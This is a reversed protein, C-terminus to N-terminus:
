YHGASDITVQGGNAGVLVFRLTLTVHRLESLKKSVASSLHVRLNVTGKTIGSVTGRGIFVMPSHGSAIHARKAASRGIMLAAFGDASENSTVRVELGQHLVSSLSQPMLQLQVRLQSSSGPPPVPKGNSGLVQITQSLGRVNGGRDIVTLTVRYTGGHAYAHTVSPGVASTGDGFTWRYGSSPVILTSITTSGDFEVVDGQNVASPVVFSPQILVGPACSFYTNPDLEITAANNFERQLLYPNQSSKGVTVKDLNNALPACGDNDNIESGDLAFWGNLAPDIIAGIQSQSIPSVLRIGFDRALVAPSPNQPLPQADPEDCQTLATWPQVVYPVETGDVYVQSHYSCFVPVAPPSAGATPPTTMTFSSGIAMPVTMQRAYGAEGLPTVYAYWGIAGSAAPPSSITITSKGGSTTISQPASALSEGGATVYTIEVKYTGAEVSGGTAATTLTPAPPTLSDNASCLKANADLCTDVGAPLLMVVTPTHGPATRSLMGTQNIMTALEHQLQANTLCITNAITVSDSLFSDGSPACGNAPYDHGAGTPRGFECASGGVVGYDICGGGYISDNSARGTRDVYQSTVAYPSNLSGSGAAVDRLFQEVYDRTGSWYARHPDWTLAFTENGHMVPGGHYCLAGTPLRDPQGLLWLDSPLAPDLCPGASSVTPVGLRQLASCPTQVSLDNCTGPVFAVGAYSGRDSANYGVTAHGAANPNTDVVLAQAAGTGLVLSTTITLLAILARRM